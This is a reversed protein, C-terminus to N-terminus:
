TLGRLHFNHVVVEGEGCAFVGPRMACWTGMSNRHVGSMEAVAQVKKWDQGNPSFFMRVLDDQFQMRFFIHRGDYSAPFNIDGTYGIYPRVLGDKLGVAGFGRREYFVTAGGIVGPPVTMEVTFEYEAHTQPMVMPVCESVTKGNGQLLLGGNGFRYRGDASSAPFGWKIDLAPERFDDSLRYGHPVVEGGKPKRIPQDSRIGPPVRFWGDPTWEIPLLLIRRGLNYHGKQYAHYMMYWEGEPTDILRGNGQASFPEDPTFTHIIPNYPSNEWPGTMEKARAAVVMHGTAPGSTGGQAATLYYYGDKYFGNWGEMCPCEVDWSSPIPWGDYVQLPGRLKTIGDKALEYVYGAQFGSLLWRRGDHGSVHTLDWREVDPIIVPESWPGLPHEAQRVSVGGRGGGYYYFRGGYEALDGGGGGDPYVRGAPEWNVLDRSHWIPHGPACTYYHVIYYDKGTRVSGIDAIDGAVIIPNRYMGNGLDASPQREPEAAFGPFASAAWAGAFTALLQRRSLHNTTLM